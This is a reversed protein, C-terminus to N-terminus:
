ALISRQDSTRDDLRRRVGKLGWAKHEAEGARDLRCPKACSGTSKYFLRQPFSDANWVGSDDQGGRLGVFPQM